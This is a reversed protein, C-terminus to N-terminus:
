PSFVLGDARAAVALKKDGTVLKLNLRIALELYSADYVSLRHDSAVVFESGFLGVIGNDVEIPLARLAALADTVAFNLRDELALRRLVDEVEWRWLAPVIAGDRGVAELAADALKTSTSSFWDVAINADIVIPV